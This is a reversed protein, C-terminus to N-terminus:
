VQYYSRYYEKASVGTEDIADLAFTIENRKENNPVLKAQTEVDTLNFTLQYITEDAWIVSLSYGDAVPLDELLVEIFLLRGPSGENNSVEIQGEEYNKNGDYLSLSFKDQNEARVTSLANDSQLLTLQLSDDRYYSSQQLDGDLVSFKTESVSLTSNSKAIGDLEQGNNQEGGKFTKEMKCKVTLKFFRGLRKTVRVVCVGTLQDGNGHLGLYFSMSASFIGLVNFRGVCLVYGRLEFNGHYKKIYIGGVLYATGWAIGINLNFIAGFELVLIMGVIGQKPEAILNFYGQGGFVGAVTIGFKKEPSGIGFQMQLSKNSDFPLIMLASLSLNFFNFYGAPFDPIAISYGVRVDIASLDFAINNDLNKLYKEFAKVFNLPGAFGVDRVKVKFDDKIESGTIFTIAEFDIEILKLLGLKFDTITSKTHFTQKTIQPPKDFEDIDLHLTYNVDVNLETARPIFDIVGGLTAKRFNKTSYKYNLTQKSAEQLKQALQELGQIRKKIEEYMPSAKLQSLLAVKEKEVEAKLWGVKGKAFNKVAQETSRLDDKLNLLQTKIRDYDEELLQWPQLYLNQLENIEQQVRIVLTNYESLSHEYEGDVEAIHQQLKAKLEDFKDKLKDDQEIKIKEIEQNLQELLLQEVEDLGSTYGEIPLELALVQYYESKLNVFINRYQEYIRTIRVLPFIVNKIYEHGKSEVVHVSLVVPDPIKDLAQNISAKLFQEQQALHAVAMLNAQDLGALLANQYKVFERSGDLNLQKLANTVQSWEPVTGSLTKELCFVKTFESFAAFPQSLKESENFAIAINEIIVQVEASRPTDVLIKELNATLNLDLSIKAAVANIEQDLKEKIPKLATEVYDKFHQEQVFSRQYRFFRLAAEQDTLNDFWIKVKSKVAKKLELEKDTIDGKLREVKNLLDGHDVRWKEAKNKLEDIADIQGLKNISDEAQKISTFVPLEEVPFIEEVIDLLSIGLIEAEAGFISLSAARTIVPHSRTANAEDEPFDVAKPGGTLNHKDNYTIGQDLVSIHTIPIGPNVMGGANKYHNSFFGHEPKRLKFLLKAQNYEYPEDLEKESKGYDDAFQVQRFKSQGEIQNIQSIVVSAEQMYPALPTDELYGDETEKLNLNSLLLLDKTEFTAAASSKDIASTGTTPDSKQLKDLKAFTLETELVMKFCEPRDTIFNQVQGITTQLNTENEKNFLKVLSFSYDGQAKEKETGPIELDGNKQLLKPNLLGIHNLNVVKTTSKPYEEEEYKYIGSEIQYNEAPILIMKLNFEHIKGAKDEGQYKFEVQDDCIFEEYPAKIVYLDVLSDENLMETSVLYADSADLKVLRVYAGNTQPTIKVFPISSVTVPDSYIKEKEAYSVFYRKKLYSIGHDYKREALISVLLKIGTFVDIARFTVSVYNDRGNKIEQEWAVTTFDLPDDNRYKLYTTSGLSSVKFFKSLVDRDYEPRMTLHHLDQRHIPAPLLEVADIGNVAQPLYHVVKFRPDLKQDLLDKLFLQNEWPRTILVGEGDYEVCQENGQEFIYEGLFREDISIGKYSQAIPSLFMKYPVAFRTIPWEVQDENFNLHFSVKNLDKIDIQEFDEQLREIALEYDSRIAQGLTFRAFDDITILEFNKGWDLLSDADFALSAKPDVLRFALWSRGSLFSLKRRLGRRRRIDGITTELEEAIHQSPLEISIFLPYRPNKRVVNGEEIKANFFYYKLYLLDTSRFIECSLTPNSLARTPSKIVETFAAMKPDTAFIGISLVSSSKLFERRNLPSEKSNGM